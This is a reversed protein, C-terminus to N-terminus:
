ALGGDRNNSEQTVVENCQCVRTRSETRPAYVVRADTRGSISPFLFCARVAGHLPDERRVDSFVLFRLSILNRYQDM